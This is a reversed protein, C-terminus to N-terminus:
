TEEIEKSPKRYNRAALSVLGRFDAKASDLETELEQNKAHLRAYEARLEADTPQLLQLAHLM